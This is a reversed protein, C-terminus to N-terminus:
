RWSSGTNIQSFLGNLRLSRISYLHSSPLSPKCCEFLSFLYFCFICCPSFPSLFVSLLSISIPFPTFISYSAFFSLLLIVSFLYLSPSPLSLSFSLTLCYFSYFCFTFYLSLFRGLPVSLSLSLCVSLFHALSVFFLLYILPPLLFIAVSLSRSPPLCLSLPLLSLFILFVLLVLQPANLCSLYHRLFFYLSHIFPSPSLSSFVPCRMLKNWQHFVFCFTKPPFAKFISDCIDWCKVKAPNEIQPLTSTQSQFHSM